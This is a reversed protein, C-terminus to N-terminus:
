HEVELFVYDKLVRVITKETKGKLNLERKELGDMDLGIAQM